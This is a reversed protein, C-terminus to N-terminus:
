DVGREAGNVVGLYGLRGRHITTATTITRDTQIGEAAERWCETNGKRTSKAM